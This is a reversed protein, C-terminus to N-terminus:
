ARLAASDESFLRSQSVCPFLFPGTRMSDSNCAQTNQRAIPDMGAVAVRICWRPCRFSFRSVEHFHCAGGKHCGIQSADLESLEVLGDNIFNRCCGHRLKGDGFSHRSTTAGHAKADTVPDGLRLKGEEMLMLIAVGTIPKSMSAIRFIADKRM